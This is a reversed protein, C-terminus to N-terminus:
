LDDIQRGLGVCRAKSTLAGAVDVVQSEWDPELGGLIQLSGQCPSRVCFFFKYLQLPRWGLLSSRWGINIHSGDLHLFLLFMDPAKVKVKLASILGDVDVQNVGIAKKRSVFLNRM